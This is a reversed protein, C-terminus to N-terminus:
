VCLIRACSWILLGCCRVSRVITTLDFDACALFDSGLVSAVLAETAVVVRDPRLARLVLLRRFASLIAATPPKPSSSVAGPAPSPVEWGALSVRPCAPPVSRSWKLFAAFYIRAWACACVRVLFWLVCMRMSPLPQPRTGHDQRSSCLFLALEWGV